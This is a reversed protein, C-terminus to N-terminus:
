GIPKVDIVKTQWPCFSGGDVQHNEVYSPLGDCLEITADAWHFTAPDIQWSYGVNVDPNGYVVKGVPIRDTKSQGSMLQYAHDVDAQKTLRVHYVESNAVKITAVYDGNANDAASAVGPVMVAASIAVAMATITFANRM